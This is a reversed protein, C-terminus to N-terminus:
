NWALRSHFFVIPTNGSTDVRPITAIIVSGVPADQATRGSSGRSALMKQLIATSNRYPKVLARGARKRVESLIQESM